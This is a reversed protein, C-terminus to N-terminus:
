EDELVPMITCRCNCVEGPGGASDGPFMLGNSFPKDIAVQEGDIAM